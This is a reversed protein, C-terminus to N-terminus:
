RNSTFTMVSEPSSREPLVIRVRGDQWIAVPRGARRHEELASAVAAKVGATIKQLLDKKQEANM